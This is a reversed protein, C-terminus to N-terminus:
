RRQEFIVLFPSVFGSAEVPSLDGALILLVGAALAGGYMWPSAPNPGDAPSSALAGTTIAPPGGASAFRSTDEGATNGDCM